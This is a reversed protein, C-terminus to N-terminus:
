PDTRGNEGGARQDAGQGQDCALAEGSPKLAKGCRLRCGVRFDCNAIRDVGMGQSDSRDPQITLARAFQDVGGDIAHVPQLLVIADVQRLERTPM